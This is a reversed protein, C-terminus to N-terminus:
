LHTHLLVGTDAAIYSNTFPRPSKQPFVFSNRFYVARKCFYVARKNSHLARRHPHTSFSLQALLLIEASYNQLENRSKARFASIYLETTHSLQTGVAINWRRNSSQSEDRSKARFFCFHLTKKRAFYSVQALLSMEAHIIASRSTASNPAFSASISEAFDAASVVFGERALTECLTAM